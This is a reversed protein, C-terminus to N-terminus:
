KTGKTASARRKKTSPPPADVMVELDDLYITTAAEVARLRVHVAMALEAIAHKRADGEDERWAYWDFLEDLDEHAADIEIKARKQKEELKDFTVVRRPEPM